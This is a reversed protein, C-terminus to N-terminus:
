KKTYTKGDLGVLSEGKKLSGWKSNWQTPTLKPVEVKEKVEVKAKPATNIPTTVGIDRKEETKKPNIKSVDIIGGEKTAGYHKATKFMAADTAGNARSTSIADIAQYKPYKDINNFILQKTTQDLGELSVVGSQKSIADETIVGNNLLSETTIARVEKHPKGDIMVERVVTGLLTNPVSTQTGKIAFFGNKKNKPDFMMTEQGGNHFRTIEVAQPSLDGNAAAANQEFELSGNYENKLDQGYRQRGRIYADQTALDKGFGKIGSKKFAYNKEALDGMWIKQIPTSEKGTLSRIAILNQKDQEPLNAFEIDAAQKARPNSDYLTQFAENVKKPTRVEEIDAIDNGYQDKHIASITKDPTVTKLHKDMEEMLVPPREVLTQVGARSGLKAKTYNSLASASQEAHYRDPYSYLKNNSDTYFKKDAASQLAELKLRAKKGEIVNLDQLAEKSTLNGGYKGYLQGIEDVIGKTQEQFYPLDPEFVGTKDIDVGDTMALAREQIAKQQAIQKDDMRKANNQLAHFLMEAGSNDPKDFIVAGMANGSSDTGGALNGTQPSVIQPM